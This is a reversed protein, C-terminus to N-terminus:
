HHTKNRALEISIPEEAVPSGLKKVRRLAVVKINSRRSNKSEVLMANPAKRLAGTDGLLQSAARQRENLRQTCLCYGGETM